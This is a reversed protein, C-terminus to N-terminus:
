CWPSCCRSAASPLLRRPMTAAHEAAKRVELLEDRIHDDERASVMAYETCCLIVSLLNNFDHV